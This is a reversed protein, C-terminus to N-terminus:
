LFLCSEAPMEAHQIAQYKLYSITPFCNDNGSTKEPRVRQGQNYPSSLHRQFGELAEIPDSLRQM